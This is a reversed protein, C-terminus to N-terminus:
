ERRHRRRRLTSIEIENEGASPHEVGLGPEVGLSVDADGGARDGGQGLAREGRPQLRASDEDVRFPEDDGGPEDVQVSMPLRVARVLELRSVPDRGCELELSTDAVHSVPDGRPAPSREEIESGGDGVSRNADVRHGLVGLLRLREPAGGFRLGLALEPVREVGRQRFLPGFGQVLEELLSEPLTPESDPHGVLVVGSGIAALDEPDELERGFLVHGDVGVHARNADLGHLLDDGVRGGGPGRKVDDVHVAHAEPLQRQHELDDLASALPSEVYSGLGIRIGRARGGELGRDEVLAPLLAKPDGVPVDLPLVRPLPEGLLREPLVPLLASDDDDVQHLRLPDIRATRVGKTM